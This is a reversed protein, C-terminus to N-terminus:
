IFKRTTKGKAGVQLIVSHYYAFITYLGKALHYPNFQAGGLEQTSTKVGLVDSHLM